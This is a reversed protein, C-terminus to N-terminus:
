PDYVDEWSVVEIVRIVEVFGTYPNTRGISDEDKQHFPGHPGRVEEPFPVVDEKRSLGM